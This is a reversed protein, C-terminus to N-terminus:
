RLSDGKLAGLVEEAQEDTLETIKQAEERPYQLLIM